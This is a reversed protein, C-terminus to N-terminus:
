QQQLVSPFSPLRELVLRDLERLIFLMRYFDYLDRCHDKHNKQFFVNAHKNNKNIRM